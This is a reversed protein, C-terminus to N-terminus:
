RAQRALIARLDALEAEVEDQSRAYKVIVGNLARKYMRKATVVANAVQQPDAMGLRRALAGNSEPPTHELIPKVVRAEFAEWVEPRGTAQCHEKVQGIARQVIMRAWEVEYLDDATRPGGSSPSADTELQQIPGDPSRKKANQHRRHNFLFHDLATLLFTRFRGLQQDVHRALEQSLFRQLLFEQLVDEADHVSLGRRRVLYAQLPALYQTLFDGIAQPTPAQGRSDAMLDILTWQTTPWPSPKPGPKNPM